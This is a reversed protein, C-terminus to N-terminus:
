CTVGKASGNLSTVGDVSGGGNLGWSVRSDGGKKRHSRWQPDGYVKKSTWVQDGEGENKCLVGAESM